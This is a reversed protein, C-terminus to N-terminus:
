YNEEIDIPKHYIHRFKEEDFQCIKCVTKGKMVYKIYFRTLQLFIKLISLHPLTLTPAWVEDTFRTLLTNPHVSRGRNVIYRITMYRPFMSLFKFISSFLAILLTPDKRAKLRLLGYFFRATFFLPFFKLIFAVGFVEFYSALVHTNMLKATKYSHGGISPGRAHYIVSDPVYVVKYGALWCRLGLDADDFLYFFDPNLIFGYTRILEKRIVFAAGPPHLVEVEEDYTGNDLKCQGRDWGYGFINQIGGAGDLFCPDSLLRKKPTVIGVTQDQTIVKMLRELWTPEVKVDNNLIAIFDGKCISLASNVGNPYGLNRKHQLIKVSSFFEKVYGVSNDSSANDVVIIEFAPYKTALVSPLCRELWKRGNYNVIVISVLPYVLGHM